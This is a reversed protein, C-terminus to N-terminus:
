RKTEYGTFNESKINSDSVGADKLAKVLMEVMSTPGAVYYLNKDISPFYERLMTKDIHRKEGNWEEDQTMICILKFNPIEKALQELEGLFASSARDKNSYLLTVKYPLKKDKIFRLMSIYPTIGIGGAIFVLPQSTYDPLVFAGGIPGVEVESDLPLQQLSKKFASDRLRTAMQLINQETPANVISFHRRNGEDDTYFPNTLTVFFFQGPKFSVPELVSFTVLLTGKAIEKKDIIKAKM